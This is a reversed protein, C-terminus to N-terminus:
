RRGARRGFSLLGCCIALMGFAAPEPVGAASTAGAGTTQGFAARWNTYDAQTFTTGLGKRWVIYDAADVTGNANFDATTGVSLTVATPSYNVTWGLNGTLAPLNTTTFKTGGLGTASLIQFSEGLQASATNLGTVNLVGALAANGGIMLQDTANGGAFDLAIALTGNANQTYNGGVTLKSGAASAFNGPVVTGSNTVNGQATGNGALAGGVIVDVAGTGTGSGIFSNILLTGGSITTGGTYTNANSLTLTGAGIKTLSSGSIIGALGVNSNGNSNITGGGTGLLIQHNANLAFSNVNFRLTANNNITVDVTPMAPLVGFSGAVIGLTGGNIITGGSFTNVSALHLAGAGNKTLGASGTISSILTAAVGTDVTVSPTILNTSPSSSNASSGSLVYGTTKFALSNVNHTVSQTVTNSATGWFVADSGDIWNVDASGNYWSNATDWNGTLGGGLGAGTTVNNNAANHDNDWYLTVASAPMCNGLTLVAAATLVIWSKSGSTASTVSLTKARAM